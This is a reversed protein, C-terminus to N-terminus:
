VENNCDNPKVRKRQKNRMTTLLALCSAQDECQFETTALEPRKFQYVPISAEAAAQIKAYTSDGGSNKSIIASIQYQEILSKEHALTFPGIAKVWTVNRPLNIKVPMATRLLVHNVQNALVDIIAQTVQGATMFLSQYQAGTVLDILEAWDSVEIWNDNWKKQWQPRHFRLLPMALNESVQVMKNSMKQAFPHTVDALNTIDNDVVYQQLGGFQTFGGSIVPCPLTAKRVIGAISYIVDFGLDHLARALYRGDATGGIVLIKM